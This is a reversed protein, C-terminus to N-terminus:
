GPTKSFNYIMESTDAGHQEPSDDAHRLTTLVLAEHTGDGDHEWSRTTYETNGSVNKDNRYLTWGRSVAAWNHLAIVIPKAPAEADIPHVIDVHCQTPNSGPALITFQYGQRKVVYNESSKHFGAAKALKALDGGAAAPICVTELTSILGIATPDTPPPPPPPPAEAVAVGPAGPTAAPPAPAPAPTPTSAAPASPPPTPAPAATQALAAPALGAAAILCILAHRL